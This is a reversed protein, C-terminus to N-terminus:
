EMPLLYFEDQSQIVIAKGKVVAPIDMIQFSLKHFKKGSKGIEYVYVGEQSFAYIYDESIAANIIGTPMSLRFQKSDAGIYWLASIPSAYEDNQNTGMLFSVKDDYDIYDQMTWGYVLVESKEVSTYTYSEVHHTGVVYILTDLPMVAYCVQNYVNLAGTMSKGPHDTRVKTIPVTGHSDLLMAWLQDGSEGFFGLDLISQFPFYMIDVENAEYDYIRARYQGEERTALAFYSNGTRAFLIQSGTGDFTKELIREGLENYIQAVQDNWVVTADGNRYAEMDFSPLEKRFKERGKLDLCILEKQDVFILGEEYPFAKAYPSVDLKILDKEIRTVPQVIFFLWLNLILILGAILLWFIYKSIRKKTSYRM